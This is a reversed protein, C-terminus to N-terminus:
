LVRIALEEAVAFSLRAALTGGFGEERLPFGTHGVGCAVDLFSASKPGADAPIWRDLEPRHQM